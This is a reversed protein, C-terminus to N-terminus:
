PADPDLLPPCEGMRLATLWLKGALVIIFFYILAYTLVSRNFVARM